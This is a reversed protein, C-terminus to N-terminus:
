FCECESENNKIKLFKKCIIKYFIEYLWYIFTVHTM